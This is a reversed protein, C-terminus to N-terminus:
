NDLYWQVLKSFKMQLVELARESGVDVEKRTQTILKHAHKRNQAPRETDHRKGDDGIFQIRMRTPM